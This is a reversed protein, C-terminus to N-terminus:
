IIRSDLSIIQGSINETKVLYVIFDAVEQTQSLKKLVSVAKANESAKRAMTGMDTMMYGPILANVRINYVSLEQAATVTLGVIAAKSASYAAQGTKGKMGSYSSVNLIHGGGSQIMLPSIASIVNFCGKLNTRIISDWEPETQKLLLNDKTVGASNIIVDLRGFTKRIEEAMARVQIIDGVDARLAISRNGIANVLNDAEKASSVYNAAVSYGHSSLIIAVQRGLGRSAGTILAVPMSM